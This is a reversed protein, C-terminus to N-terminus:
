CWCYKENGVWEIDTVPDESGEGYWRLSAISDKERHTVEVSPDLVRGAALTTSTPNWIDVEGMNWKHAEVQAAAFLAAIAASVASGKAAATKDESAAAYDDYQPDEVVLRLIHLTNGKSDKPDSNYWMRTWVCWVRNGPETGVIAGKIEPTKGYLEKCVFDERAHHWQLHEVDPVIAVVTKGKESQQTAHKRM